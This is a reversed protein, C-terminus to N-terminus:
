TLPALLERLRQQARLLHTKVTGLPMGTATAIQAHTLERFYALGLVWREAASLAALAGHLRADAQQRWLHQAPDLTGDAATDADPGAAPLDDDSGGVSPRTRQQRRVDLCRSRVLTLLWTMASGRGADYRAVTRWAEFYADALLDDVDSGTLMRRAIARAYAFTADYFAEFAACDGRASAALLAALREDRAARAPDSDLREVPRATPTPMPTLRNTVDAFWLLAGGHRPPPPLPAHAHAYPM